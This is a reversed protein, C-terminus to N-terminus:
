RLRVQLGSGATRPDDARSIGTPTVTRRAAARFVAVGDRVAHFASREDGYLAPIPVWAVTVGAALCDKLHVTEAEFGGGPFPIEQLARGRLLRMGCQTDRVKARMAIGVTLSALLNAIRRLMPMSRLDGFRDGIVLEASRAVDIFRPIAGPPHQGDADIVLVGDPPPQRGLLHKLGLALASGKGNRTDLHLVEAGTAEARRRLVDLAPQEMGDSVVLLSGVHERVAGLLQTSPPTDHAPMVAAVRAADLPTM